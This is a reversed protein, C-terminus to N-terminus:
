RRGFGPVSALAPFAALVMDALRQVPRALADTVPVGLELEYCAIAADIQAETMNEHNITLGIVRTPAFQEILDVETRASPMPMSPFDCRHLRAPAHQLIVADPRSGRLILSTTSFAPPSLPGQGEILIVDPRQEEFAELITAELEGSCFQSPIADLAVGYRAGQMLGTQGTGILVANLGQERLAHTLATATTRKGIACDTGLVAIRPCTVTGIRDTFLRLDRKRPPKRVDHLRVGNHESAACFEEDETLFEHLGNVVDMGLAMAGLVVEREEATLMGLAPAMGLIFCDPVFGLCDLADRLDQCIPISKHGEGLLLGADTGARTSDIVSVVRYKESHRVLGNATKGDITGFLGECYVLATDTTRSATAPNAHSARPRSPVPPNQLPHGDARDPRPDGRQSSPGLPARYM